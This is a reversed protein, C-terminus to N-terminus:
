NERRVPSLGRGLSALGSESLIRERRKNSTIAETSFDGGGGGGVGVGVGPRGYIILGRMVGGKGQRREKPCSHSSNERGLYQCQKNNRNLFIM